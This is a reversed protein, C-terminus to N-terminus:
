PQLYNEMELTKQKVSDIVAKSSITAGTIAQVGGIESSTKGQFRELFWPRAVIGQESSKKFIVDIITRNEKIESIRSGLGPTENQSLVKIGSVTRDKSLGVLTEIVSSYGKRSATFVIGSQAGSADFGRYFLEGGTTKAEEFRTAAPLVEKLGLELEQKQQKAIAPKTVANVAALLGAASMSIFGLILGYRILDKM